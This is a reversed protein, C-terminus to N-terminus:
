IKQTHTDLLYDLISPTIDETIIIGEIKIKIITSLREFGMVDKLFYYMNVLHNYRDIGDDIIFSNIFDEYWTNEVRRLDNGNRNLNMLFDPNLLPFLSGPESSKIFIPNGLHNDEYDLLEISRRLYLEEDGELIDRGRLLPTFINFTYNPTDDFNFLM